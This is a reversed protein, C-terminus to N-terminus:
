PRSELVALLLEVMEQKAILDPRHRWIGCRIYIVIVIKKEIEGVGM